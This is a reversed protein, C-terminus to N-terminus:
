YGSLSPPATPDPLSSAPLWTRGNWYYMTGDPGTVTPYGATADVGPTVGPMSGLPTGSGLMLDFIDQPGPAYQGGASLSSMAALQALAPSAYYAGPDYGASSPAGGFGGSFSSFPSAASSPRQTNPPSPAPAPNQQPTGLQQLLGPAGMGPGGANAGARNQRLNRYGPVKQAKVKKPRSSSTLSSQGQNMYAM